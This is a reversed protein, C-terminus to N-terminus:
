RRQLNLVTDACGLGECDIVLLFEGHFVDLPDQFNSLAEIAVELPSGAIEISHAAICLDYRESECGITRKLLTYIGGRGLNGLHVIDNM